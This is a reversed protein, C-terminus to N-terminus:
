AKPHARCPQGHVQGRYGYRADPIVRVDRMTVRLIANEIMAGITDGNQVPRSM